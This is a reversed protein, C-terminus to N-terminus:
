KRTWIFKKKEIALMPISKFCSLMNTEQDYSLAITLAKDTEKVFWGVSKTTIKFKHDVDPILAWDSGKITDWWEVYIVKKM